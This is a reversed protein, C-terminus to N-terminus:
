PFCSTQNIDIEKSFKSFLSMGWDKNVSCILEIFHAEIMIYLRINTFGKLSMLWYLKIMLHSFLIQPFDHYM